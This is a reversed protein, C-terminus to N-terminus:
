HGAQAMKKASGAGPPGHDYDQVSSINPMGWDKGNWGEFGDMRFFWVGTNSDSIMILGDYNRIDIGFAGNEVSTGVWDPLGGFGSMHKCQCTYYWGVTVPNAPDSMNFIQLGDEYASVFVYPWRIEHNHSLDHWDATWAGVPKTISQVKGELGPRLDFIRLPAFQYETETVAFQGDPTPTFTHGFEIGASGTISTLLKPTTPDTVDHVYYGGRGAGYFKDQHTAPDCGLYFDHFGARGFRGTMNSEPM